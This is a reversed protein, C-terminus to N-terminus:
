NAWGSFDWGGPMTRLDDWHENFKSRRPKEQMQEFASVQWGGPITRPEGFMLDASWDSAFSNEAESHANM